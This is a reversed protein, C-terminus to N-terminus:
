RAMATVYGAGVDKDFAAGDLYQRAGPQGGLTWLFYAAVYKVALDHTRQPPATSGPCFGCGACLDVFDAHAAGIFTIARAPSPAAGYLVQYNHDAPTCPIGGMKSVTEGLFVLPVGAPLRIAALEGQASPQMGFGTDVPDIALLAKVRGDRAAVLLSIKGGLSHGTVGVRGGDLRGLVTDAGPGSPRLLWDILKITDKRYQEHDFDARSNQTVTVLGHSALREAYAAYSSRPISFGPSLVVLPFPAGAMSLSAGDESPGFVTTQLSGGLGMAVPVSLDFRVTQRPGPRDPDVPPVSADLALDPDARAVVLDAPVALDAAAGLDAAAALDASCDPCPLPDAICSVCCLAFALFASKVAHNSYAVGGLDLAM